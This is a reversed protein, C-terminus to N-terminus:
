CNAEVLARASALLVEDAILGISEAPTRSLWSNRGLWWDAVGWPDADADLLANIDLVLRFPRGAADFQFVPFRLGDRDQLRILHEQDPDGGQRRLDAVSLAPAALLRGMTDQAIEEPPLLGSPGLLAAMEPELLQRLEEILAQDEAPAVALGSRSSTPDAIARRVPHDAPLAVALMDTLEDAADLRGDATAGAAIFQGVLTRFRRAAEATLQSEVSDWHGAIARMVLDLSM